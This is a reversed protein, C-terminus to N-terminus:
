NNVIGRLAEFVEKIEIDDAPTRNLFNVGSVILDSSSGSNVIRIANQPGYVGLIKGLASDIVETTEWENLFEISSARRQLIRQKLVSDSGSTLCLLIKPVVIDGDESLREFLDLSHQYANPKEPFRRLLVYEYLIYTWLTRDMVVNKGEQLIKLADDSRRKEVQAFFDLIKIASDLDYAPPPFSEVYYSSENVTYYGHSLLGRALESKGSFSNGEIGAIIM